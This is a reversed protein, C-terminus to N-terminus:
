RIASSCSLTAPSGSVSGADDSRAQTLGTAQDVRQTADAVGPAAELHRAQSAAQAQAAGLEVPQEGVGVVLAAAQQADLEVDLGAGVEHREGRRARPLKRRRLGTRRSRGMATCRTAVM